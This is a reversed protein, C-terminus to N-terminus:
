DLMEVSSLGNLLNCTSLPPLPSPNIVQHALQFLFAHKPHDSMPLTLTPNYPKIGKQIHNLIDKLIRAYFYRSRERLFRLPAQINSDPLFQDIQATQYKGM